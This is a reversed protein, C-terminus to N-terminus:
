SDQRPGCRTCRAGAELAQLLHRRHLEHHALKQRGFLKSHMYLRQNSTTHAGGSRTWPRWPRHRCSPEGELTRAVTELALRRSGGHNPSFQQEKNLTCFSFVCRLYISAMGQAVKVPALLQVGGHSREGVARRLGRSPTAAVEQTM